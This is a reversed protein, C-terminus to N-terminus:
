SHCTRRCGSHSRCGRRTGSGPCRTPSDTALGSRPGPISGTVGAGGCPRAASRQLPSLPGALTEVGTSGGPCPHPVPVRCALSHNATRGGGLRVAPPWAPSSTLSPQPTGSGRHLVGPPGDPCGFGWGSWSAAPCALAQKDPRHPPGHRSPVKRCACQGQGMDVEETLTGEEQVRHTWLLIDGAM